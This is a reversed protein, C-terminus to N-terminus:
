HNGAVVSEVLLLRVTENGSDDIEAIVNDMAKFRESTTGSYEYLNQHLQLIM